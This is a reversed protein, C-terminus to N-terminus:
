QSHHRLKMKLALMTLKNSGVQIEADTEGSNEIKLQNGNDVLFLLASNVAIELVSDSQTSIKFTEGSSGDGAVGYQFGGGM